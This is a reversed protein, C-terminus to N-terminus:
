PRGYANGAVRLRTRRARGEAEARLSEIECRALGLDRLTAEDIPEQRAQMLTHRWSGVLDRWLAALPGPRPRPPASAAACSHHQM